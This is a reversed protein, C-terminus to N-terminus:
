NGCVITAKYNTSASIVNLKIANLGGITTFALWQAEVPVVFSVGNHERHKIVRDTGDEFMENAGQKYSSEYSQSVGDAEGACVHSAPDAGSNDSSIYFKAWTPLFSGVTFYRTGTLSLTVRGTWKSM